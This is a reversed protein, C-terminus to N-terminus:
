DYLEENIQEEEKDTDNDTDNNIENPEEDFFKIYIENVLKWSYKIIPHPVYIYKNFQHVIQTKSDFLLEYNEYVAFYKKKNIKHLRKYEYKNDCTGDCINYEISNLDILENIIDYIIDIIKYTTIQIYNLSRKIINISTHQGQIYKYNFVFIIDYVIPVNTFLHKIINFANDHDAETYETDHVYNNKIFQNIYDTPYYSTISNRCLPCKKLRQACIICCEHNCSFKYKELTDETNHEASCIICLDASTTENADVM